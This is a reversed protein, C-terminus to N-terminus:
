VKTFDRENHIDKEEELGRDLLALNARANLLKVFQFLLKDKKFYAVPYLHGKGVIEAGFQDRCMRLYQPYSLNMLRACLINYSGRTGKLPLNEHKIEIVYKGPNYPSEDYGFCEKKVM